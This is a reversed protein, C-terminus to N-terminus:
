KAVVAGKLPDLIQASHTQSSYWIHVGDRSELLKIAILLNSGAQQFWFDDGPERSWSTFRALADQMQEDSHGNAETFMRFLTSVDTVNKALLPVNRLDVAKGRLWSQLLHARKVGEHDGKEPWNLYDEVLLAFEDLDDIGRQHRVLCRTCGGLGARVHCTECTKDDQM